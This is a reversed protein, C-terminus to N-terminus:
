TKKDMDNIWKRNILYNAIGFGIFVFGMISALGFTGTRYYSLAVISLGTAAFFLPMFNRNRKQTSMTILSKSVMTDVAAVHEECSSECALSKGVVVSCSKCIGKSCSKCIGVADINQHNYCKM